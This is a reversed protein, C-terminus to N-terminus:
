AGVAPSRGRAPRRQAVLGHAEGAEEDLQQGVLALHEAQEGQQQQVVAPPGRPDVVVAVEHQEGVLVAGAPVAVGDALTDAQARRAGQVPAPARVRQLGADGGAVGGRGVAASVSQRAM